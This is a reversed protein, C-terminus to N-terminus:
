QTSARYGKIWDLRPGLSVSTWCFVVACPLSVGKSTCFSSLLPQMVMQLAQITLSTPVREPILLFALVHLCFVHEERGM